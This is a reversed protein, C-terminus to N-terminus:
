SPKISNFAKELENRLSNPEEDKQKSLDEHMEIREDVSYGQDKYENERKSWMRRNKQPDKEMKFADERYEQEKIKKILDAEAHKRTKFKSRNQDVWFDIANKWQKETKAYMGDYLRAGFEKSGARHGFEHAWTDLGLSGSLVNVTDAETGFDAGPYKYKLEKEPDRGEHLYYGELNLKKNDPIPVVRARKADLASHYRQPMM